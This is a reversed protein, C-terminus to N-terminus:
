FALHDVRWGVPQRVLTVWATLTAVTATRGSAEVAIQTITAVRQVTDITDPRCGSCSLDVNAVIKVGRTKWDAWNGGPGASNRSSNADPRALRQTLWPTARAFADAGSIDSVPDWTFMTRLAEAAVADATVPEVTATTTTSPRAREGPTAPLVDIPPATASVTSSSDARGADGGAFVSHGVFALLVVVFAVGLVRAVTLRPKKM